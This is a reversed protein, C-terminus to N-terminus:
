RVPVGYYYSCKEIVVNETGAPCVPCFKNDLVSTTAVWPRGNLFPHCDSSKFKLEVDRLRALVRWRNEEPKTLDPGGFTCLVNCTVELDRTEKHKGGNTCLTESFASLDITSPHGFMCAAGPKAHRCPGASQEFQIQKEGDVPTPKALGDVWPCAFAPNKSACGDYIIQTHPVPVDASGNTPILSSRYLCCKEKECKELLPSALCNKICANQTEAGVCRNLCEAVNRAARPKPAPAAWGSACLQLVVVLGYFFTRRSNRM